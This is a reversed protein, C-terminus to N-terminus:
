ETKWERKEKFQRNAKIEAKIEEISMGPTDPKSLKDLADVICDETYSMAEM